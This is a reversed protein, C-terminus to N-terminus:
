MWPWAPGDPEPCQFMAGTRGPPAVLQPPEHSPTGVAAFCLAAAMANTSHAVALACSTVIHVALACPPWQGDFLSAASSGATEPAVLAYKLLAGTPWTKPAM